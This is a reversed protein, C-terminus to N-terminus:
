KKAKRIAAAELKFRGSRISRLTRYFPLVPLLIKHKYFLPYAGAYVDYDKNKVSAPVCFRGLAYRIKNWGNKRMKNEVRHQITGYTGSSLIYELMEREQSTLEGGNFLHMALTRNDKEFEVIGLKILEAEIYVM